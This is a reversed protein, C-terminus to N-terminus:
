HGFPHEEERWTRVVQFRYAPLYKSEAYEEQGQKNLLAKCGQCAAPDPVDYGEFAEPLTTESLPQGCGDCTDAEM